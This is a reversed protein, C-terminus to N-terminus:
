AENANRIAANAAGSVSKGQEYWDRYPCDPLDYASLGIRQSILVDVLHMWREFTTNRIAM